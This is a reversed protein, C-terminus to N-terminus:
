AAPLEVRLWTAPDAPDEGPMGDALRDSGDAADANLLELHAAAAAGSAPRGGLAQWPLTVQLTYGGGGRRAVARLGSVRKVPTWDSAGAARTELHAVAAGGGPALTATLRYLSGGSGRWSLRFGDGKDPAAAAVPQDDVATFALTLSRGDETASLRGQAQSAGGIFWESKAASEPAKGARAIRLPRNLVGAVLLIREQGKAGTTASSLVRDPAIQAISGWFGKEGFPRSPSGFRRAGNDGVFTWMGGTGRLKGNAQVIVEGSDLQILYPAYGTFEPHVPWRRDAPGVAGAPYDPYRWNRELSSWVISPTVPPPNVKKVQECEAAYVIGKGGQLSVGVAMGDMSFPSGDATIGETRSLYEARPNKADPAPTWTRGGDMSRVMGVHCQGDHVDTFLLQVEGSPLQLLSPEWNKGRFAWVPESWTEGEDTSRMVEIGEYENSRTNNRRQYALLLTGDQLQLFEPNCYAVRDKSAPDYWSRKIWRPASWTKGGDRSRQQFTQWGFRGDMFTMLLDGSKLRRIRPYHRVRFTRGEVTFEGM